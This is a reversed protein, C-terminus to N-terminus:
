RITQISKYIGFHIFGNDVEFCVEFAAPVGDVSGGIGFEDERPVNPLDFDFLHAAAVYM